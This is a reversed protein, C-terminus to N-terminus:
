HYQNPAGCFTCFNVDKPIKRGCSTCFVTQETALEDFQHEIEESITVENFVGDNNGLLVDAMVDVIILADEPMKMKVQSESSLAFIINKGNLSIGTIENLDVTKRGIDILYNCNYFTAETLVYGNIKEASEKNDYIALPFYTTGEQSIKEMSKAKEALQLFEPEGYVYLNNVKNKLLAAVMKRGIEYQKTKEHNELYSHRAKLDNIRSLINENKFNCGILLNLTEQLQGSEFVGYGINEKYVKTYVKKEKRYLDADPMNNFSIGDVTLSSVRLGNWVSVYEKVGACNEQSFYDQLDWEASSKWIHYKECTNFIIEFVETLNEENQGILVDPQSADGKNKLNLELEKSILLKLFDIQLRQLTSYGNKKYEDDDTFTCYLDKTLFDMEQGFKICDNIRNEDVGGSFFGLATNLAGSDLWAVYTQPQIMKAIKKAEEFPINLEGCDNLLQFIVEPNFPDKKLVEFLLNYKQEKDSVRQLNGLIAKAEKRNEGLVLDSSIGTEKDLITYYVCSLVYLSNNLENIVLNKNSSNNIAEVRRQVDAKDASDTFSDGIGRMAGTAMNLAGATVAGKIAGKLGFGGGQWQSRSNREYARQQALKKAYNDVDDIQNMIADVADTREFILYNSAQDKIAAGSYSFVKHEVLKEIIYEIETDIAKQAANISNSIFSDFSKCSNVGKAYESVLYQRRMDLNNKEECFFLVEQGFVIDQKGLKFGLGQQIETHQSKEQKKENDDSSVAKVEQNEESTNSDEVFFESPCGCNPCASVRSSVNKGCDPCVMLAM